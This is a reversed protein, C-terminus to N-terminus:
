LPTGEYWAGCLNCEYVNAKPKAFVNCGCVGGSKGRTACHFAVGNVRPTFLPRASSGRADTTSATSREHGIGSEATAQTM